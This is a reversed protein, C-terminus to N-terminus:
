QSNRVCSRVIRWIISGILLVLGIIPAAYHNVALVNIMPAFSAFEGLISPTLQLIAVPAALIGGVFICPVAAWTLGGPINYFNTGCLLLLLLVCAGIAMYLVTDQSLMRVIQMIEALPVGAGAAGSVASDMANNIETRITTNIDNEEVITTVNTKIEDMQEETIQIEFTEEIVTKNEEVLQVLEEATIQTNETGSLIDEAYGAAKDAIFDTVTSNEVFTHLQEKTIPTEEGLMEQMTDYLIDVLANSDGSLIADQAGDPLQIQGPDIVTGGAAVMPRLSAPAKNPLLVANIIQKIGGSSTLTHMDALLVTAILVIGLVTSLLFSLLQMGIRLAIHPKRRVPQPAPIPEPMPPQVELPPMGEYYIPEQPQLVTGCVPCYPQNDDVFNGCVYCQM